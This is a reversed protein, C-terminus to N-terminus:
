PFRQLVGKVTSAYKRLHPLDLAARRGDFGAGCSLQVPIDRKGVVECGFRAALFVASAGKGAAVSRSAAPYATLERWDSCRGGGRAPGRPRLPVENRGRLIQGAPPRPRSRAWRVQSHRPSGRPRGPGGACVKKFQGDHEDSRLSLAGSPTPPTATQKVPEDSMFRFVVRLSHVASSM